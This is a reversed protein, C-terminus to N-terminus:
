ILHYNSGFAKVMNSGNDTVFLIKKNEFKFKKQKESFWNGISDGKTDNIEECAVVVSKIAVAELDPFHVTLSIFKKHTMPESWIDSTCSMGIFDKFEKHLSSVIAVYETSIRKKYYDKKSLADDVHVNGHRAGIYIFEQIVKRFNEDDITSLPRLGKTIFKVVASDARSDASNVKRRPREAYQTIKRMQEDGASGCTKKHTTLASTGSIVPDHVFVKLCDKCAVLSDAVLMDVSEDIKIKKYPIEKEMLEEESITFSIASFYDWVKSHSKKNLDRMNLLQAGSKSSVFSHVRDKISKSLSM